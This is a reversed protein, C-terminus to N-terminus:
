FCLLEGKALKAGLNMQIARGCVNPATTVVRAGARQALRQTGDSSNADVVIIELAAPELRRLEQITSTIATKENLTQVLAIIPSSMKRFRFDPVIISVKPLVTEDDIQLSEAQVPALPYVTACVAISAFAAAWWWFPKSDPTGDGDDNGGNGGKRDHGDGGGSGSDWCALLKWEVQHRRHHQHQFPFVARSRRLAAGRTGIHVSTSHKRCQIRAGLRNASYCRVDSGPQKSASRAAAHTVSVVQVSTWHTM